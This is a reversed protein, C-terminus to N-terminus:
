SKGLLGKEPTRRLGIIWQLVFDAHSELAADLNTFARLVVGRTGEEPTVTFGLADAFAMDFRVPADVGLLERMPRKEGADDLAYLEECADAILDACRVQKSSDPGDGCAAIEQGSLRRYRAAIRPIFEGDPTHEGLCPLACVLESDTAQHQLSARLGAVFGDVAAPQEVPQEGTPPDIAELGLPTM